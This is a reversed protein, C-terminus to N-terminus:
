LPGYLLVSPTLGGETKAGRLTSQDDVLVSIWSETNMVCAAERPLSLDARTTSSTESDCRAGVHRLLQLALEDPPLDPHFKNGFQGPRRSSQSKVAARASTGRRQPGKLVRYPTRPLKEHFVLRHGCLKLCSGTPTDNRIIGQFLLSSPTVCHNTQSSQSPM